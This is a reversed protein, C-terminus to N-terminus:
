GKVIGFILEAIFDKFGERKKPVFKALPLNDPKSLDTVDGSATRKITRTNDQKGYLSFEAFKEHTAKNKRTQILGSVKDKFEAKYTKISFYGVNSTELKRMVPVIDSYLRGM